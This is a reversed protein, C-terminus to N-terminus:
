SIDVQDLLNLVMQIDKSHEDWIKRIIQQFSIFSTQKYIYFLEADWDVRLLISQTNHTTVRM